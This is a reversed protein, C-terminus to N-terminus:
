GRSTYEAKHSIGRFRDHQIALRFLVLAMIRRARADTAWQTAPRGPLFVAPRAGAAMLPVCEVCASNAGRAQMVPDLGLTKRARAPRRMRFPIRLSQILRSAQRSTGYRAVIVKPTLDKEM